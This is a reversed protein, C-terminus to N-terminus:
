HPTGKPLRGGSAICEDLTAFPEFNKVSSYTSMGPDHCIDNRSKKVPGSRQEERYDWPPVPHAEQWLGISSVRASREASAYVRRDLPTQDKEYQKYHWAMGDVVQTLNVNQHGDRCLPADCAATSPLWVTALFRGYRDKDSWEIRVDRGAVLRSLNQRSLEGFAQSGEPADIGVLRIRHELRNSDVVELTDGDVVKSVRVVLSQPEAGFGPPCIALALLPLLHCTRM